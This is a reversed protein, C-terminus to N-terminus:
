DVLKGKAKSFAMQEAPSKQAFEARTMVLASGGGPPPTKDGPTKAPGKAAQVAGAQKAKSIWELKSAPDGEPMLAKLNEPISALEIELYSNLAKEYRDYLELKPSAAEYLEKFKGQEKMAAQQARTAEADRQEAKTKMETHVSLLHAKDAREKALLEKLQQPDNPLEADPTKSAAGAKDQQDKGASGDDAGPTTKGGAGQGDAGTGGGAGGQDPAFVLKTRNLM